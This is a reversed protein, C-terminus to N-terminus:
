TAPGARTLRRFAPEVQEFLRDMREAADEKVQPLLHTYLNATIGIQSHGLWGMVTRLDAGSALLLSASQHRLDHFRMRPFGVRDLLRRFAHGVNTQDLPTGISTTFVFDGDQWRHEYLRRESEQLVQQRRLAAQVYRPVPLTRRSRETKLEALAGRHLSYRFTVSTFDDALDSWRLALCEGLRAGMGIAFTVLPQLPDGEIRRLLDTVQEPTLVRVQRQPARPARALAAVNRNLLGRREGDKLATRLVARAHLATRPSLGDAAVMSRMLREVDSPALATLRMSGLRPMLHTRTLGRYREITAPRVSGEIRDLWDTLFAGM